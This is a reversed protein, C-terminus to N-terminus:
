TEKRGGHPNALVEELAGLRQILDVNSGAVRVAKSGPTRRIVKIFLFTLLQKVM